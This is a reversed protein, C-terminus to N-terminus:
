ALQWDHPPLLGSARVRGTIQSGEPIPQNAARSRRSSRSWIWAEQPDFLLWQRSGVALTQPPLGLLESPGWCLAQWLQPVTFGHGEVLEQWLLPLVLGHGALGPRRQDHPLLQDEADLAQHHVAVATIVGAALADILAQRDGPGGLPPEMRWGNHGAPLSGSDAVLQWWHVTAPPPQPHVRLQAVGEATSLNMLALAASPHNHHLALLEQLPLTESSPPDVPWGARLAEVRERVLGAASLQVQRPALLLPRDGIEGLQLARHLLAAPPANNSGALGISGAALLDSHPALQEDANALSFSAWLHLQLPTDWRLSLLTPHDRPLQAWPLLAVQGYGGQIAAAALSELNEARGTLPDELVSHPDVLAPALLHGPSPHPELGLAHARDAAAPGLELLCGNPDILADGRELAEGPGRLLELDALWLPPALPAM